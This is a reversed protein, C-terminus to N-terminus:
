SARLWDLFRSAVSGDGERQSEAELLGEADPGLGRVVDFAVEDVGAGAYYAACCLRVVRRGVWKFRTGRYVVALVHALMVQLFGVVLHM